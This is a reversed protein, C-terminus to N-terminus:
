VNIGLSHLREFEEYRGQFLGVLDKEASGM